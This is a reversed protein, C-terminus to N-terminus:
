PLSHDTLHVGPGRSTERASVTLSATGPRDGSITTSASRPLPRPQPLTPHLRFPSEFRCCGLSSYRQHLAPPQCHYPVAPLSPWQRSAQVVSVAPLDPFLSIAITCSRSPTPRGRRAVAGLLLEGRDALTTRMTKPLCSPSMANFLINLDHPLLSQM